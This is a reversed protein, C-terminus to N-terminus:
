YYCTSYSSTSLNGTTDTATHSAYVSWSAAPAFSISTGVSSSGSNSASITTYFAGDRYVSGHVQITTVYKTTFSYASVAAAPPGVPPTTEFAWSSGELSYSSNSVTPSYNAYCVSVTLVLITVMLLFVKVLSRKSM